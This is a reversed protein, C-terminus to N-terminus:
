WSSGFCNWSWIWQFWFGEKAFKFISSSCVSFSVFWKFSLTAFKMVRSYITKHETVKLSTGNLSKMIYKIFKKNEKFEDETMSLSGDFLFVLDVQKKTCDASSVYLLTVYCSTFCSNVCCQHIQFLGSRYVQALVLLLLLLLLKITLELFNSPQIFLLDQATAVQHM